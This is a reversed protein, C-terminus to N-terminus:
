FLGGRDPPTILGLRFIIMRIEVHLFHKLM